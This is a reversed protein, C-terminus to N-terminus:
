GIGRIELEFRSGEGIEGLSVKRASPTTPNWKPFNAVNVVTEFVEEVPKDIVQLRKIIAMRNGQRQALQRPENPLCRSSPGPTLCPMFLPSGIGKSRIGTAFLRPASLLTQLWMACCVYMMETQSCRSFILENSLPISDKSRKWIRSQSRFHISQVAFHCTITSCTVHRLSTARVSPKSFNSSLM